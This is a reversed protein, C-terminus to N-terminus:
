AKGLRFHIGPAATQKQIRLWTILHDNPSFWSTGHEDRGLCPELGDIIPKLLGPLSRESHVRIDVWVDNVLYPRTWCKSIRKMWDSIWDTTHDSPPVSEFDIELLATSPPELCGSQIILGEDEAWEKTATISSIGKYGTACLSEKQLGRM